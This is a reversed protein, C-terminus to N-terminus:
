KLRPLVVEFRSGKGPESKVKIEGGMLTVLRRCLPLGLGAGESTGAKVYKEFVKPLMDESIGCGTDEVFIIVHDHDETWGLTISGSDTFKVANNMLNSVVQLLSSRNVRVRDRSDGKSYIFRLRQPVIVSHTMYLEEMLTDVDKESLDLKFDKSQEESTSIVNDILSLLQITNATIIENYQAKEEEELSGNMEVLLKSFGVIANLPTRIEHGMSALFSSKLVSEEEKRYAADIEEQRRMMEDIIIIMGITKNVSDKRAPHSFLVRVHHVDPSGSLCLSVVMENMPASSDEMQRIFEGKNDSNILGYLDYVTIDPSLNFRRYAQDSLVLHGNNEVHFILGNNATVLYEIRQSIEQAEAGQRQLLEGALLRKRRQRIVAFVLTMVALLIALQYGYRYLFRCSASRDSWPLNVFHFEKPFENAYRHFRHFYDWSLWYDNRHLGWPIESPMKGRIFIDDVVSHLDKMMVPYPAFYGGVCKNMVGEMKLNFRQPTMTFYPGLGQFLAADSWVDDKMRLYTTNRRGSQLMFSYNFGTNHEHDTWNRSDDEASLPILTMRLSDRLENKVFTYPSSLNVNANYRATDSLQWVAQERLYDDMYGSDLSTTVWTFQRYERILDLNRGIDPYSKFGTFNPRSALLDRYEPYQVGIFVVPVNEVMPGHCSAVGHAAKDGCLIVMDPRYGSRQINDLVLQPCGLYRLSDPGEASWTVYRYQFHEHGLEDEIANRLSEFPYQDECLDTVVLLEKRDSVQRSCSASLLSAMLLACILRKM